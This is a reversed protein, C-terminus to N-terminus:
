EACLQVEWNLDTWHPVEYGAILTAADVADEKDINDIPLEDMRLKDLIPQIGQAEYLNVVDLPDNYQTGQKRLNVLFRAWEAIKVLKTTAPHQRFELTGLKGLTKTNMASYKCGNLLHLSGTKNGRLTRVDNYLKTQQRFDKWLPVCFHSDVRDPAFKAFIYPEALAYMTLMGWLNRLAVDSMNVHVHVGCRVNAEVERFMPVKILERVAGLLEVEKLPTSILEVGLNRLSPDRATHWHGAVWEGMIGTYNEYELEIGVQPGELGGRIMVQQRLLKDWRNM